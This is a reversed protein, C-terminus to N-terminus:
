GYGAWYFLLARYKNTRHAVDLTVPPSSFPTMGPWADVMMLGNTLQSDQVGSTPDNVTIGVAHFGVMSGNKHLKSADTSLIAARYGNGEEVWATIRETPASIPRVLIYYGLAALSASHGRVWKEVAELSNGNSRQGLEYFLHEQIGPAYSGARAALRRLLYATAAGAPSSRSSNLKILLKGQEEAVPFDLNCSSPGSTTAAASM